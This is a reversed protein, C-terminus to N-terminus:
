RKSLKSSMKKTVKIVTKNCCGAGMYGAGMISLVVLVGMVVLATTTHKSSVLAGAPGVFPRAQAEEVLALVSLCLKIPWGPKPMTSKNRNIKLCIALTFTVDYWIMGYWVTAVYWIMGYWVMGYWVMGACAQWLCTDGHMWSSVAPPVNPFWSPFAWARGGKHLAVHQPGHKGHRCDQGLVDCQWTKTLVVNRIITRHNRM